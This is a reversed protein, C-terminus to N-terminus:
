GLLSVILMLVVFGVLGAIFIMRNRRKTLIIEAGRAKDADYHIPEDNREPPTTM